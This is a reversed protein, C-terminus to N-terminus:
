DCRVIEVFSYDLIEELPLEWFLGCMIEIDRKCIVSVCELDWLVERLLLM